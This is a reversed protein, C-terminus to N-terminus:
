AGGPAPDARAAARPASAQGLSVGVDIRGLRNLTKVGPPEGPGDDGVDKAAPGREVLHNLAAGRVRLERGAVGGQRTGDGRDREAM